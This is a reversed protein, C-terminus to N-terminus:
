KAILPCGGEALPRFAQEAPIRSLIKYFDWDAKSESPKKVEVLYMDHLARGDARISGRGFFVDETPTSKMAAMVTGADKSNTAAVAKLYHMISAYVGAQAMNPVTGGRRAAFRKAFARTGDNLDWYTAATFVLGQAASLGLAKVDNILMLLIALRQGGQTVGFEGAQKIANITDTGANALGIVDAKSAQARLLYSSFDSTPFPARVSGVVQGGAQRM